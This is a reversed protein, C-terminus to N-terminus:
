AIQRKGEPAGVGGRGQPTKRAAKVLERAWGEAAEAMALLDAPRCDKTASVRFRDAALDITFTWPLRGRRAREATINHVTAPKRKAKVPEGKEDLRM